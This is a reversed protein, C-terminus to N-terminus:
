PNSTSCYTGAIKECWFVGAEDVSVRYLDRAGHKVNGLYRLRGSAKEDGRPSRPGDTGYVLM